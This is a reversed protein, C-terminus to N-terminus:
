VGGDQFDKVENDELSPEQTFADKMYSPIEDEHEIVYKVIDPLVSALAEKKNTM